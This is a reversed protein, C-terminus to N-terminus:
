VVGARLLDHMNLAGVLRSNGDVILLASIRKEEMIRVGEAALCDPSVTSCGKQIVDRIVTKHVDIGRELLRRLDGDTFIGLLSGDKDTVATMGLKKATMEILADRVAVNAAVQPIDDGTHMVDKIRILLKRGLSGSPHSFAFDERSFGRAELLAVALADGLALAVTTSSTPALGLPCAEEAIATDLAVDAQRGLPSEAKGTMAILPIGLRKLMPLITLVESSDGSHSLALLVDDQTIMGLDGHGAEGPHVFFSPTGTSALTAAIKGGIHGSKGMGTVVVRGKCGLILRCASAFREDIRESLALVAAAENEIVRRASSCLLESRPYDSEDQASSPMANLIGM